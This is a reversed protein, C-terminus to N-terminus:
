SFIMELSEVFTLFYVRHHIPDEYLKFKIINSKYAKTLYKETLIACLKIPDKKQHSKNKRRKRRYESENSSDSYSLLSDSFDKKRHKQCVKNKDRKNGKSKSYNSDDLSDSKSLSSDSLSPDSELDAPVHAKIKRKSSETRRTM